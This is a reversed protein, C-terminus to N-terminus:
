AARSLSQLSWLGCTNLNCCITSSLKGFASIGRTSRTCSTGQQAPRCPEGRIGEVRPLPARGGPCGACAVTVAGALDQGAEGTEVAANNRADKWKRRGLGSTWHAAEM